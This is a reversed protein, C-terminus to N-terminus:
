APRNVPLHKVLVHLLGHKLIPPWAVLAGQTPFLVRMMYIIDPVMNFTGVERSVEAILTVMTFLCELGFISQALM